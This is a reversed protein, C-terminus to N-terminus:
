WRASRTAAPTAAVKAKASQPNHPVPPGNPDLAVGDRGAASGTTEGSVPALQAASGCASLAVGLIAIFLISRSTRM